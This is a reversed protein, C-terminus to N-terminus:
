HIPIVTLRARSVHENFTAPDVVILQDETYRYRKGSQDYVTGQGSWGFANTRSPDVSFDNDNYSLRGTGKLLWDERLFDCFPKSGDLEGYILVPIEGSQGFVVIAGNLLGASTVFQEAVVPGSQTGGCLEFSDDARFHLVFRTGADTDYGLAIILQDAFRIIGSGGPVAPGNVIGLSPPAPDPVTSEGCALVLLAAALRATGLLIPRM